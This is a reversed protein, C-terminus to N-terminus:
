PMAKHVNGRVKSTYKSIENVDIYYLIKISVSNTQGAKFTNQLNEAFSLDVQEDAHFIENKWALSIESGPAFEWKFIMDVNFANFNKDNTADSLYAPSLSGDPELFLLENSYNAASRYHRCRLEAGTKTNFNYGMSITNILTARTYTGFYISDNNQKTVFGNSNYDNSFSLGYGINFRSTAKWGWYNYFWNGWYNKINMIYAGSSLNCHLKKNYDSNFNLEVVRHEPIVYYRNNTSRPEFYDSEAFDYAYYIGLWWNNKFLADTWFSLENAVPKNPLFLRTNDWWVETSWNKFISFPEFVNYSFTTKHEVINNRQLYGMDNLDLSNSSVSRQTSYRFKGKIKSLGLVYGYGTKIDATNKHSFRGVGLLQHTQNKDKIQFQTATVNASYPNNFVSLNTNIVSLYSNNKMVKEVVSVNYNTFPQTVEQRLEGTKSNTIEAVAPLTMANMVGVGWGNKDRGTIKTANILQTTSPNFKFEENSSLKESLQDSFIPHAGIRRSYFINGREFLENGEIFFQRKEDYYLEYPSLNLEKDDSQIQGFDPILMMDLTHSVSLGYKLDVGGKFIFNNEGSYSEVYEAVYPSISLRVPPNIDKVGMLQGSQHLFGSIKNDILNWSNNSNFRRINRMFNIGWVMEDKVSFRLASYPIRMEVTWGDEEIKTESQWVADWSNDEYDGSTGRVAKMDIQSNAPTVIFEYALLGENNPDIFVVFYDSGGMNDRTTIYSYISDPTDYLKAGFYIAFDDYFIQVKSAKYSPQGNYPQMQVFDSAIAAVNYEPEDLVGDIKIPNDVRLATIQKRQLAQASVNSLSVVIFFVLMSVTIVKYM